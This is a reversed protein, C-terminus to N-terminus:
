SLLLERSVKENVLPLPNLLIRKCMVTHGVSSQQREATLSQGGAQSLCALLRLHAPFTGM